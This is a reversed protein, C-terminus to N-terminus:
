DLLRTGLHIRADTNTKTSSRAKREQQSAVVLFKRSPVQRVCNYGREGDRENDRRQGRGVSTRRWNVRQQKSEQGGSENVERM